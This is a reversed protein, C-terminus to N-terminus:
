RYQSCQTGPIPSAARRRRTFSNPLAPATYRAGTRSSSAANPLPAKPSAPLFLATDGAALTVSRTEEMVPVYNDTTVVIRLDASSAAGTSDSVEVTLSPTQPALWWWQSDAVASARLSQGSVSFSFTTCLLAVAAAIMDPKRLYM